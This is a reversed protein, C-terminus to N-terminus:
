KQKTKRKKKLTENCCKENGGKEGKRAIYVIGDTEDEM